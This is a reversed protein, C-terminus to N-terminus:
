PRSPKDPVVGVQGLAMRTVRADRGTGAVHVTLRQGPRLLRMPSSEFVEEDFPLLVGEDTVVTGSRSSPDFRHVTAQV